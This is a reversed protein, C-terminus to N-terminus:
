ANFSRRRRSSLRLAGAAALLLGIAALAWSGVAPIVPPPPLPAIPVQNFVPAAPSDVQAAVQVAATGVGSVLGRVFGTDDAQIGVGISAGGKGKCEIVRGHDSSVFCNVGTNVLGIQLNAVVNATVQEATQGAVTNAGGFVMGGGLQTLDAVAVVSASPNGPNIPVGTALGDLITVQATGVAPCDPTIIDLEYDGFLSGGVMNPNLLQAFNALGFSVGGRSGVPCTTDTVTFSPHTPDTCNVDGVTFNAGSLNCGSNTTISSVLLNCKDQMTTAATVNPTQGFCTRQHDPCQSVIEYFLPLNGTMPPRAITFKIKSPNCAHASGAAFSL